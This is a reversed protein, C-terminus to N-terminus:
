ELQLNALSTIHPKLVNSRIGKVLRDDATILACKAQVALAAYICDYLSIQEAIAIQLARKIVLESPLLRVTVDIHRHLFTRL